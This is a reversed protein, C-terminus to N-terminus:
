DVIKGDFLKIQRDTKSSLSDDHTVMLITQDLDRTLEHLMDFVIHANKSDLNGTPEDCFIIKPDNILARAISVRQQQGGSLRNVKKDAQDSIGLLKLKDMAKQKLEDQELIGLKLGPLMVNDLASFDNLLYHFQFIFGISSNRLKALKHNSLEQLDTGEIEVIGEYDRDLSSLAYLLTSKGSGSPGIISSFEGAHIKLSIDKLVHFRVPHHFYKNLKRAEVITKM